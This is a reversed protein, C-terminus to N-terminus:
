KLGQYIIRKNVVPFSAYSAIGCQNGKNRSMKIYGGEGWEAGRSNKVLWYDEGDETGYGVILVAYNLDDENCSDDNLVGGAYNQFNDSADIAASVPAKAVAQRLAEEDGAPLNTYTVTNAAVARIVGADCRGGGGTYPYYEESQIGNQKVYDYTYDMLGGDCGQNGQESSCDLIQQASLEVLKETELFLAGELAGVASFAYGSGCTGLQKVSTVAGRTRWDVSSPIDLAQVSVVCGGVLIFCSLRSFRM